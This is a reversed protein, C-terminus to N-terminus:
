LLPLGTDVLISEPCVMVNPILEHRSVQRVSDCNQDGNSDEIDMCHEDQPMKCSQENHPKASSRWKDARRVHNSYILKSPKVLSMRIAPATPAVYTKHQVRGRPDSESGQAAMSKIFSEEGLVQQLSVPRIIMESLKLSVVADAPSMVEGPVVSEYVVNIRDGVVEEWAKLVEDELTLSWTARWTLVSSRRSPMFEYKFLAAVGELGNWVKMTKLKPMRHAAFAAAQLLNMIMAPSTEPSLCQSTLAIHTLNCWTLPLISFFDRADIMFSASLSRVGLNIRALQQGLSVSRIRAPSTGELYRALFRQNTHEFLIM